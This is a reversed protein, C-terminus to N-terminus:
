QIMSVLTQYSHQSATGSALQGTETGTPNHLAVNKEMWTVTLTCIAPSAVTSCSITAQGVPLSSNLAAAWNQLDFSAMQSASCASGICTGNFTAPGHQVKPPNGNQNINITTPPSGWYAVNAQMSAAMSSALMTALSQYRGAETNNVSLTQLGAIGLVGLNLVLLTVLVELMSFGRTKKMSM